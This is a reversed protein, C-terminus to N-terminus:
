YGEERDCIRLTEKDQAKSRLNESLGERQEAVVTHLGKKYVRSEGGVSRLMGGEAQHHEAM